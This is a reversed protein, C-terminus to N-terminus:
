RCRHLRAARRPRQAVLPRPFRSGVARQDQGLRADGALALHRRHRRARHAGAREDAARRLAEGFAWARHLPTLPPGQCNINAPIVPLDFHPTLFHLPVMIGHDFKWEEAYAVDVTQMVSEILRRSLAPMARCARRARHRALGSGRDPRRLPRGHRDRLGAHQEHLLQRLARRRRRDARRARRRSRSRRTARFAAHFADRLAPEALHARGTIGPRM